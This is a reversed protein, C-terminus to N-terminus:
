YKHHKVKKHLTTSITFHQPIIERHREVKLKVKVALRPLKSMKIIVVGDIEMM